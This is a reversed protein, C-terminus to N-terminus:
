YRCLRTPALAVAAKLTQKNTVQAPYVKRLGRVVIADGGGGAPLAAVREREDVVDDGELAVQSM